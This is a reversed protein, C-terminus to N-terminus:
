SMIKRLTRNLFSSPDSPKNDHKDKLISAIEHALKLLERSLDKNELKLERIEKRCEDVLQRERQLAENQARTIAQSSDSDSILRKHSTNTVTGHNALHALLEGRDFSWRGGKTKHANVVGQSAWRRMTAPSKEALKSAQKLSMLEM